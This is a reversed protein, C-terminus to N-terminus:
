CNCQNQLQNDEWLLQNQRWNVQHLISLQKCREHSAASDSVRLEDVTFSWKPLGMAWDKLYYHM